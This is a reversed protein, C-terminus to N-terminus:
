RGAPLVRAGDLVERPHEINREEGTVEWGFEALVDGNWVSEPAPQTAVWAEAAARTTFVRGDRPFNGTDDGYLETHWPSSQGKWMAGGNSHPLDTRLIVRAYFTGCGPGLHATEAWTAAAKRMEAFLDRTHTSWGLFVRRCVKSNFYDSQYDCDNSHLEAIIVAQASSPATLTQM